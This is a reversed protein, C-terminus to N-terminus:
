QFRNAPRISLRGGIQRIAKARSRPRSRGAFLDWRAPILERGWLASRYVTKAADSLGRQDAPYWLHVDVQRAEGAASGPVVIRKVTHGVRLDAAMGASAEAVVAPLQVFVGFTLASVTLATLVQRTTFKM